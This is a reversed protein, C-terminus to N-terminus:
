RSDRGRLPGLSTAGRTRPPHVRGIGTLGPHPTSTWTRRSLNTLGAPSLGAGAFTTGAPYSDWRIRLYCLTRLKPSLLRRLAAQLNAPRLMLSRRSPGSLCSAFASGVQVPPLSTRIPRAHVITRDAEGPHHYLPGVIETGYSGRVFRPSKVVFPCITLEERSLLQLVLLSVMARHTM